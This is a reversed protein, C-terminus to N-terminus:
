SSRQRHGVPPDQPAATACRLDPFSFRLFGDLETNVEDINPGLDEIAHLNCRPTRGDSIALTLARQRLSINAPTVTQGFQCLMLRQDGAGGKVIESSRGGDPPPGTAAIKGAEKIVIGLKRPRPRKGALEDRSTGRRALPSKVRGGAAAHIRRNSSDRSSREGGAPVTARPSSRSSRTASSSSRLLTERGARDHSASGNGQEIIQEEGHWCV